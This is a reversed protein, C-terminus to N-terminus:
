LVATETPLYELSIYSFGIEVLRIQNTFKWGYRWKM